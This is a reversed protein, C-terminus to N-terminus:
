YPLSNDTNLLVDFQDKISENITNWNGHTLPIKDIKEKFLELADVNGDFGTINRFGAQYLNISPFGTGCATDLIQADKDKIIDALYQAYRKSYDPDHLLQAAINWLEEGSYSTNEM